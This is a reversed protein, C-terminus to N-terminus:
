GRGEGRAHYHFFFGVEKGGESLKRRRRGRSPPHDNLALTEGGGRGGLAQAVNAMTDHEADENKKKGKKM